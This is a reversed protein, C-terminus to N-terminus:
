TQQNQNQIKESLIYMVIIIIIIDKDTVLNDEDEEM